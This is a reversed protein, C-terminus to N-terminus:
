FRACFDRADEISGFRDPFDPRYKATDLPAGVVQCRWGNDAHITLKHRDIHQKAITEAVLREALDASERSARTWAVVSRSHIDLITYFSYYTWKVPGALKTIDWSWAQNRATAILEPKLRAPHRARRRRERVSGHAARLLRYTTAVSCM